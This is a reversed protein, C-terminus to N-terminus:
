ADTFPRSPPRRSAPPGVRLTPPPVQWPEEMLGAQGCLLVARKRARVVVGGLGSGARRCREAQNSACLPARIRAPNPNRCSRSRDSGQLTPRPSPGTENPDARPQGRDFGPRRPDAHARPRDRDFERLAAHAQHRDCASSSPDPPTPVVALAAEIPDRRPQDCPLDPRSRIRARNTPSRLRVKASARRRRAPFTRPLAPARAAPPRASGSSPRREIGPIRALGGARRQEFKPRRAPAPDHGADTACGRAPGSSPRPESAPVPSPGREDADSVRLSRPLILKSRCSALSPQSGTQPTKAETAAAM